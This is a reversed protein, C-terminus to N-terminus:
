LRGRPRVPRGDRRRPAPASGLGHRRVGMCGRATTRGRGLRRHPHDTRHSRGLGAHSRTPREPDHLHHREVLLHRGLGVPGLAAACGRRRLPVLAGEGGFLFVRGTSEDRAMAHGRRASPAATTGIESWVGARFVWSDALAGGDSATGGFLLAGGGGNASLAHQARAPPGAGDISVWAGNSWRWTDDLAAGQSRGGFLLVDGTTATAAMAADARAPPASAPSPVAAWHAGRWLWSDGLEAGDDRGGFCLVGGSTRAVGHGERPSPAAARSTLERWRNGELIWTTNTLGGSFVLLARQRPDWVAAAEYVAPAGITHLPRWGSPSLAWTENYSEFTSFGGGDWSFGGHLILQGRSRDFVLSSGARASPGEPGGDIELWRQGDWSWTDGHQAWADPHTGGFLITEGRVPDFAMAADWRPPPSAGTPTVDHWQHGDWEWTDRRGQLGDGILTDETGGFMVVRRRYGDYAMKQGLRGPISAPSPTWSGDDWTWISLDGTCFSDCSMLLARNQGAHYSMSGNWVPPTRSRGSPRPRWIRGDWEWPDQPRHYDNQGGYIMVVGRVPDTSIAIRSGAPPLNVPHSSRHRLYEPATIVAAGDGPSIARDRQADDLLISDYTAPEQADDIRATAAVRHPSLPATGGGTRTPSAIWQGRRVQVPPSINGAADVAVVHAETHDFSGLSVSAGGAPIPVESRGLEVAAAPDPGDFAILGADSEVADRGVILEYRPTSPSLASGWPARRHVVGPVGDVQPAPPPERDVTYGPLTSTAVHGLLDTATVTVRHEGAPEAAVVRSYVFGTGSRRVVDLTVPEAAATQVLPPGSVPEDLVFTIQVRTGPAATTPARIPNSPSPILDVSATNPVPKPGRRDLVVEASAIPSRLGDVGAVEAFVQYPGDGCTACDPPFLRWPISYVTYGTTSTRSKLAPSDHETRGSSLAVDSTVVIRTAAVARLELTVTATAVRGQANAGTVILAASTTPLQPTQTLGLTVTVEKDDGADISFPASRGHYRLASDPDESARVRLVVVRDSGFPVGLIDLTSGPVYRVPEATVLVAGPVAASSRQEVSLHLWPSSTCAQNCGGVCAPACTPKGDAWSFSIRVAATQNLGDCAVGFSTFAVVVAAVIAPRMM